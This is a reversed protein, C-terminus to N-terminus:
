PCRASLSRRGALVIDAGDRGVIVAVADGGRVQHRLREAALAIDAQDEVGGVEEDGLLAVVSDLLRDGLVIGVDLDDGLLADATGVERAVGLLRSARHQGRMRLMLPMQATHSTGASPTMEAARVLPRSSRTMTLQSRPSFTAMLM